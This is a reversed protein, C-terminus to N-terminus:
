GTMSPPDWLGSTSNYSTGYSGANPTTNNSGQNLGYMLGGVGGAVQGLQGLYNSQQGPIIPQSSYQSASGSSLNALMMALQEKAQADGNAASTYLSNLNNVTNGTIDAMGAGQQNSLQALSSATNGINNSIDRGSQFQMGAKAQSTQLPINASFQGLASQQGAQQGYLGSSTTAAGYGRDAVQGLQGFQTNYDQMFTNAALRSLDRLVNGGSLGGTASANRTLAREAEQQAFAIGPSQQYNQYAQQQAQPGLAGSLAAQLNGAQLGSQQWPQLQQQGMGYTNDVKQMTSNIRNTADTAGADLTGMASSLGYQPNFSGMVGQAPGYQAMTQQVRNTDWPNGSMSTASNALMSPDINNQRAYDSMAQLARGESGAGGSAYQNQLGQLTNTIEQQTPM